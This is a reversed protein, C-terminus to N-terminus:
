CGTTWLPREKSVGRDHYPVNTFLFTTLTGNFLSTYDNYTTSNFILTIFHHIYYIQFVKSKAIYFQM